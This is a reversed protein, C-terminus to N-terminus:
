GWGVACRESTYRIAAFWGERVAGAEVGQFSWGPEETAYPSVPLVGKFTFHQERLRFNAAGRSGGRFRVGKYVSLGM